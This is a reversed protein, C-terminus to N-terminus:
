LPKLLIFYFWIKFYDFSHSLHGFQQTWCMITDLLISHGCKSWIYVQEVKGQWCATTKDHKARCLGKNKFITQLINIIPIFTHVNYLTTLCFKQLKIYDQFNWCINSAQLHNKINSYYFTLFELFLIFFQCFLTVDFFNTLSYIFNFIIM